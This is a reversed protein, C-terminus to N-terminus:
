SSSANTKRENLISIVRAEDIQEQNVDFYNDPFRKKLDVQLEELTRGKSLFLDNDRRYLFIIDDVIDLKCPIVVEELSQLMIQAKLLLEKKQKNFLYSVYLATSIAGFVFGAILIILLENM